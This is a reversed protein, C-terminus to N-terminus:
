SITRFIGSPLMGTEGIVFSCSGENSNGGNYGFFHEFEKYDLINFPEDRVLEQRTLNLQKMNSLTHMRGRGRLPYHKLHYVKAGSSVSLKEYAETASTYQSVHVTPNISSQIDDKFALAIPSVLNGALPISYCLELIVYKETSSSFTVLEFYSFHLFSALTCLRALVFPVIDQGDPFNIGDIRYLSKEEYDWKFQKLNFM